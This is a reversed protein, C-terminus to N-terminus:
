KSSTESADLLEKLHDGWITPNSHTGHGSTQETIPLLIYRGKQVKKIAPEMVNMEPPNCEDDASNVAYFVCKIKGLNPEPNYQRSADFAYIMDNADQHRIFNQAANNYAKEAQERTPTRRQMQWPSSTMWMMSTYAGRLGAAPPETYDGGKWTPDSEVCQIAAFRTIRNRGGIEVPESANAMCADMFDPYTEAWVWCHMAGMSTGLILRLHNIGMQQTLVTYDARIMDDYTYKPFKMHLGDSPKSSKGHGIGDPLIIFYKAADLLQGAHFLHGGFGNNTFNHSNGTTGHMIYVANTIQGKANKVPKGLTTYHLKLVPLTEGSVFNFNKLEYDVETSDPLQASLRVSILLLIPLLKKM